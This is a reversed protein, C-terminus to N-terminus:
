DTRTTALVGAKTYTDENVEFTHWFEAGANLEGVAGAGILKEDARCTLTAQGGLMVLNGKPMTSGKEFKTIMRNSIPLRVAPDFREIGLGQNRKDMILQYVINFLEDMIADANYEADKLESLADAYAEKSVQGDEFGKELVLLDVNSEAAVMMDIHFTMTHNPRTIAGKMFDGDQYYVSVLRKNNLVAEAGLEPPAHGVVRFLNKQNPALINEMVSKKVIRFAMPDIIGLGRTSM